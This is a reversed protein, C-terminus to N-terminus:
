AALTVPEPLRGPHDAENQLDMYGSSADGYWQFRYTQTGPTSALQLNKGPGVVSWYAGAVVGHNFHNIEALALSDAYWGSALIHRQYWGGTADPFGVNLVNEQFSPGAAFGEGGSTASVYADAWCQEGDLSSNRFTSISQRYHGRCYRLADFFTVRNIAYRADAYMLNLHIGVDIAPQGGTSWGVTQIPQRYDPAVASLYAIIMDGYKYYTRGGGGTDPTYGNPFYIVNARSLWALTFPSWGDVALGSVCDGGGFYIISPKDADFPPNDLVLSSVGFDPVITIRVTDPPSTLEGDSAVLEFECEQIEDTQFFGSITPTTTDADAIALGPGAIQCWAYSLLGSSDPDYSGTGDLEVPDAAAYRSLGADAIPPQNAIVANAVEATLGWGLVLVISIIKKM